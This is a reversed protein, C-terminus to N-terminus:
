AFTFGGTLTTNGAADVLVVDKAGAAVAPTTVLITGDTNKTAGSVDLATGAIGGFTVSTVGVLNDGTITVVTGGAIGGTVPSLVVSSPADDDVGAADFDGVYPFKLENLNAADNAITVNKAPDAPWTPGERNAPERPDNALTAAAVGTNSVGPGAYAAQKAYGTALLWAELPGTYVFDVAQGLVPSTLTVAM